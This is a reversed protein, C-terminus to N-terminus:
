EHSNVSRKSLENDIFEQMKQISIKCITLELNLNAIQGSLSQIIDDHTVQLNKVADRDM